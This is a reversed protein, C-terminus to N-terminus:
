QAAGGSEEDIQFQAAAEAAGRQATGRRPQQVAPGRQGPGRRERQEPQQRRQGCARARDCQARAPLLAPASGPM